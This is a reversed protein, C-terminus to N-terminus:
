DDDEPINAAFASAFSRILEEDQASEAPTAAPAPASPTVVPPAAAAPKAPGPTPSPTAQVPARAPAEDNDSAQGVIDLARTELAERSGCGLNDFNPDGARAFALIFSGADTQLLKLEGDGVAAVCIQRGGDVTERWTLEADGMRMRKPSPCLTLDGGAARYQDPTPVGADALERALAKLAKAEGCGYEYVTDAGKEFYLADAGTSLRVIRFAGDDWPAAYTERDNILEKSWRLRVPPPNIVEPVPQPEPASKSAAGPLAYRAKRGKGTQILRGADVLRGLAALAQMPDGGARERIAKMSDAGGAVAALLATEYAVIQTPTDLDLRQTTTSKDTVPRSKDDKAAKAAKAAKVRTGRKAKTPEGDHQPGKSTCPWTIGAALEQVQTAGTEPDRLRVTFGDIVMPM